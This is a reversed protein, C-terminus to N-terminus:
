YVDLCIIKHSIVIILTFFFVSTKQSFKILVSVNVNHIIIIYPRGMASLYEDLKENRLLIWKGGISSEFGELAM